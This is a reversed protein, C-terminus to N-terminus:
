KVQRAKHKKWKIDKIDCMARDEPREELGNWWLPTSFVFDTNM